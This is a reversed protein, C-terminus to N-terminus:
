ARSISLRRPRVECAKYPKLRLHHHLRQAFRHSEDRLHQLLLSGPDSPPLTIKTVQSTPGRLSILRDPHKALGIIPINWPIVSVAIKVQNAGGDILILDPIGWEPHKLRRSLVEKLMKLDHPTNPSRIKFHRYQYTAPQGQLFVVMSGTAYTGQLNSIDYAEIRALPYKTPLPLAKKLLRRLHIIREHITDQTLIPLTSSPKLKAQSLTKLQKIQDRFVAAQEFNQKAATQQLQQKLRRILASKKNKLILKINAINKQYAAAPIKHICAGPCLQLHYYFCAKGVPDSGTPQPHDCYPFIPRLIKLIQTLQRSSPYPGFDGTQRTLLIRPFTEKSFTLYLKSHDDKLLINFRPQYTKILEAELLLAELESETTKFKTKAKQKLLLATKPSSQNILAYSKLRNNLNKAKGVYLVRNKKNLFWYVGPSQPFTGSRLPIPPHILPKM